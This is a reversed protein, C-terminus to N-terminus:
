KKFTLAGKAAEFLQITVSKRVPHPTGDFRPLGISQRDDNCDPSNVAFNDCQRPVQDGRARVNCDYTEQNLNPCPGDIVVSSSQPNLKTFYVTTDQGDWSNSQRVVDDVKESLAVSDDVDIVRTGPPTLTVFDENTVVPFFKNGCCAARCGSEVCINRPEGESM